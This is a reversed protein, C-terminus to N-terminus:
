LDLEFEREGASIGNILLEISHLGPYLRRTSIIRFPHAKAIRVEDGPAVTRVALKFTKSSSQGNAKRHHVVYDISLRAPAEGINRLTSAFTVFEGIRVTTRDLALPAVDLAAPTFGLLALAHLDGRRVLTRLARTVLRTTNADPASLWRTATAVALDPHNRSIDNLHNAVSRRVYESADRYLADLIPVTSDPRALIAPVQTAWPLFPRTGETALRRVDVDDSHIWETGIVTLARVLDSRLLLRIAFESSLRPTLEALLTLADYFAADGGNEIAREAIASTVPWILWGSFYASGSAARRITRAFGDYDSDLDALLADRLLDSRKRLALPGLAAPAARLTPLDRDPAAAQVASTLALATHLGIFDDAFPM